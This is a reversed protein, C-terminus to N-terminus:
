PKPNRQHTICCLAGPEPCILITPTETERECPTTEVSHIQWIPHQHMTLALCHILAPITGIEPGQEMPTLVRQIGCNNMRINVLSVTRALFLAVETLYKAKQSYERLLRREFETEQEEICSARKKADVRGSCMVTAIGAREGTGKAKSPIM